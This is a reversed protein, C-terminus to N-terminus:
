RGAAAAPDRLFGAVPRAPACRAAPASQRDQLSRLPHKRVARGVGAADIGICGAARPDLLRRGRDRRPRQASLRHLHTRAPRVQVHHRRLPGAPGQGDNGRDVPHIEERGGLEDRPEIPLVVHLGKGGSTKVFSQLGTDELRRRVEIAAEIVASWPVDEGPDLDFILRDPKELHEVTSGWPHIEVVGAQVLEILGELSDIVLMKDKEGVDVRRVAASLGHWAHKAFFGKENVGSPHRM